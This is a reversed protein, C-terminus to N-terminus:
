PWKGPLREIDANSYVRSMPLIDISDALTPKGNLSFPSFGFRSPAGTPRIILLISSGDSIVTLTNTSLGCSYSSLQSIQGHSYLDVTSKSWLPPM